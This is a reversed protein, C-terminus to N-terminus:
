SGERPTPSPPLHPDNAPAWSPPREVTGESGPVAAIPGTFTLWATRTTDESRPTSTAHARRRHGDLADEVIVSSRHEVMYRCDDGLDCTGIYQTTTEDVSGDVVKRALYLTM